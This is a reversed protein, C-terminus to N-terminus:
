LKLKNESMVMWEKRLVIAAREFNGGLKDFVALFKVCHNELQSCTTMFHMAAQFEGIIYKFSPKVERILNASFMESALRELNM